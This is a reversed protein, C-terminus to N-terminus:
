IALYVMSSTSPSDSQMRRVFSIRSFIATVSLGTSIMPSVPVPLSSRAWATWQADWRAFPGKTAMLTAAM